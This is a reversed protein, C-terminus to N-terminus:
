TVVCALGLVPWFDPAVAWGPQRANWRPLLLNGDFWLAYGWAVLLWCQTSPAFDAWGALSWALASSLLALGLGRWAPANPWPRAVPFLALCLLALLAPLRADGALGALLAGALALTYLLASSGQLPRRWYALPAAMEGELGLRALAMGASLLVNALPQGLGFWVPSTREGALSWLTVTLAILAAYAHREMRYHWAVWVFLLLSLGLAPLLEITSLGWLAWVPRAAVTAAAVLLAFGLLSEEVLRRGGSGGPVTFGLVTAWREISPHALVAVGTRWVLLAYLAAVSALWPLAFGMRELGAVGGVLGLLAPLAVWRFQHFYGILLVGTVVGLGATVPWTASTTEALFRLTLQVLGVSWLLAMVQELPQRIVDTLSPLASPPGADSLAGDPIAPLLANRVRLRWNLRWLLVWLAAVLAFEILGTGPGPFYGHKVLAGAGAVCALAGYFLAQRRLGVSLWLLLGGALALLLVPEPRGLPAPWLAMGGLGLALAINALAGNVWIARGSSPQRLDRLGLVAWLAALALWGYATQVAWGSDLWGPLYAVAVAALTMVGYGAQVWRPDAGPLMLALRVGGYALLAATAATAFGLWGPANWSLSWATLGMLLFAFVSLSQLAIARLRSAAWRACGLLALLGPQSALGHWAPPLAQLLGFGYLGALCGFLLYLPTLTRYRWTMWGYLLAGLFLTLLLAPTSQSAVVVAVASLGYLVFSFRSLFTYKNVWEKFAADVPFLLGC